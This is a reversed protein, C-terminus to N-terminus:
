KICGESVEGVEGNVIQKNLSQLIRILSALEKKDIDQVLEYVMRDDVTKIELYFEKSEVGDIIVTKFKPELIKYRDCAIDMRVNGILKTEYDLYEVHTSM